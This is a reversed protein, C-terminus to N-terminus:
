FDIKVHHLLLESIDIGAYFFEGPKKSYLAASYMKPSLQTGNIMVYSQENQNILDGEESSFNVLYAVKDGAQNFIFDTIALPGKGLYLSNKLFIEFNPSIKKNNAMVFMSDKNAAAYAITKGDPSFALEDGVINYDQSVKTKNIYVSWQKGSKAKYAINKGDSSPVISEINSFGDSIVEDGKMVYWDGKIKTQYIVNEPGCFVIEDKDRKLVGHHKIEKYRKTIRKDNLMIFWEKKDKVVYAVNMQDPSLYPESIYGDFQTSVREAENFLAFYREKDIKYKATYFANYSNEQNKVYVVSHNKNELDLGAEVIRISKAKEISEPQVKKQNIMLFEYADDWTFSSKLRNMTNIVYTYKKCDPSIYVAPMSISKLLQNGNYYVFVDNFTGGNTKMGLFGLNELNNDFFADIRFYFPVIQKNNRFLSVNRTITTTKYGSSRKFKSLQYAINKGNQSFRVKYYSNYYPDIKFQQLIQCNVNELLQNLEDIEKKMKPFIAYVQDNPNIFFDKEAFLENNVLIQATFRGIAWSGTGSFGWGRSIYASAWDSKVNFIAELRGFEDGNLYKWIYTVKYDKDEIKYKLNKINLEINIYQVEPKFSNVYKRDQKAPLDKGSEFFQIEDLVIGLSDSAYINKSLLFLSITLVLFSFACKRMENIKLIKM